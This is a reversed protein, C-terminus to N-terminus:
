SPNLVRGMFLIAKTPKDHIVFFFPHDIVIDIKKEEKFYAGMSVALTAATAETGYQDVHIYAGHLIQDVWLPKFTSMPSLDAERSFIHSIGLKNMQSRLPFMSSIEFEPMTLSVEPLTYDHKIPLTDLLAPLKEELNDLHKKGNVKPMLITMSLSSHSYPIEVAIYEQTIEYRKSPLDARIMNAQVSTEDLQKFKRVFPPSFEKFWKSKFYITNALILRAEETIDQPSIMSGLKGRTNKSIWENIEGAAHVPNGVLDLSRIDSSMEKQIFRLFSEEWPSGDQIWLSNLIELILDTEEANVNEDLANLERKDLGPGIWMNKRGDFGLSRSSIKGLKPRSALESILRGLEELEFQTDFGEFISSLEAKTEGSSGEYLIGAAIFISLPSFILNEQPSTLRLLQSGLHSISRSIERYLSQNLSDIM